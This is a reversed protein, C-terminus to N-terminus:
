WIYVLIQVSVIRDKVNLCSDRAHVVKDYLQLAQNFTLLSTLPSPVPSTLPSPEIGDVPYLPIILIPTAVSYTFCLVAVFFLTYEM